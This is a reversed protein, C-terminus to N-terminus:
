SGEEPAPAPLPPLQEWEADGVDREDIRLHYVLGLDTVIVITDGHEDSSTAIKDIRQKM